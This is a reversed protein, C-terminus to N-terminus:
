GTSACYRKWLARYAAEISRAFRPGDALPSQLLRQRLERRLTALRPLDGALSVATAVFADDSDVALDDLAVHFLQSRGARGVCTPGVRSIVPVGMWLSDLSTTHGNYPYSDLGLDLAHYSRLYEARPRYPLFEVRSAAIGHASLRQQLAKRHRGAPAMLVLRASPLAALVGGWHSLTHESLKCPSNLCGFTVHGRALAPLANVDPQVALPDYCWFSDALEISRESYHSLTQLNELRPDTFRADITGIGTTGPYALWAVQVPAPKRAFVLPRGNSMHMTLDVLIDVRDTRVLEAIATDSLFRVDRWRDAYGTIRETVADTHEVCSYCVVEYAAHDHHSLLPITFLSQCHDRFDPSVYGIRLRREAVRENPYSQLRARLPAAFRADWRECEARLAGGDTEVFSLAYALNSHTSSDDPDLELARRYCAIAEGIAGADKLVNGLNNHLSPHRPDIALGCRFMQEADDARGLNRLLCGLNNIAGLSRPEAELAAEYAAMAARPEGGQKYANGLNSLADANGPRLSLTHRYCEIADRSRGLGLLANGLNYAADADGPADQLRADLIRVAQEHEGAGCLASGLNVAHSGTEPELALAERLLAISEEFRATGQLLVGLNAMAQAFGPRLALARRYAAEAQAHEGDAQYCIGLNNYAEPADPQLRVAAQYASAAGKLDHQAQLATGLGFAADASTADLDAAARYAAAAEPWRGLAAFCQALGMRHRHSAPDAATVRGILELAREAHGSQLELLGLRFTAVAHGPAAALLEAYLRAASQLDGTRHQDTAQQLLQEITMAFSRGTYGSAEGAAAARASCDPIPRGV